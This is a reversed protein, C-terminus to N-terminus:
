CFFVIIRVWSDSEDSIAFKRRLLCFYVQGKRWQRTTAINVPALRM